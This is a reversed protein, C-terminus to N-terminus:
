GLNSTHSLLIHFISSNSTSIIISNNYFYSPGFRLLKSVFFPFFVRHKGEINMILTFVGQFLGQMNNSTANKFTIIDQQLVYM